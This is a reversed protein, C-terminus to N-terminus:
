VYCCIYQTGEQPCGPKKEGCNEEDEGDLCHRQGDCVITSLLSRTDNCQFFSFDKQRVELPHNFTNTESDDRAADSCSCEIADGTLRGALLDVHALAYM